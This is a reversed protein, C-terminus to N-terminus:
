LWMEVARPQVDTIAHAGWRPVVHCKLWSEYGSATNYRKPMKEARYQEVLAAV